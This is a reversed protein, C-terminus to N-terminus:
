PQIPEEDLYRALLVCAAAADLRGKDRRVAKWQGSAYLAASAERSTDREDYPVIPVRPFVRRLRGLFPRVRAVAPGEADTDPDLPWGLM